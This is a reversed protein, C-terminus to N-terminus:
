PAVEDWSMVRTVRPHNDIKRNWPRDMVYVREVHGCLALDRVNHAADDIAITLRHDRCAKAKDRAVYVPVERGFGNVVLWRRIWDEDGTPRHSVIVPEGVRCIRRLGDLAGPMPPIAITWDRSRFCEDGWVFSGVEKPQEDWWHWHAINEVAYTAGFRENASRVQATGLDALTSDFDVLWGAM